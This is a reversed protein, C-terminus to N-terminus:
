IESNKVAGPASPVRTLHQLGVIGDTSVRVDQTTALTTSTTMAIAKPAGHIVMTASLFMAASTLPSREIGANALASIHIPEPKPPMKM